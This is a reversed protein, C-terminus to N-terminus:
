GRPLPRANSGNCDYRGLVRNLGTVTEYCSDAGKGGSTGAGVGAGVACGVGAAVLAPGGSLLQPGASAGSAGAACGKIANRVAPVGKPCPSFAEPCRALGSLDVANVPNNAVYLYRNAQGLDGPQLLPDMQTWRAISPQYYRAGFHYLGNGIDHGGAYKISTSVTGSSPTDGGDVDYVYTRQVAGNSAVLATTSGIQDTVFWSKDTGKLQSVVTAGGPERVLKALTGGTTIRSVGLANNAYTDSGLGTIENNNPSLITTASGGLTALRGKADWTSSPGGSHGTQNGAADYNYTTAGAPPSAGPSSGTGCTPTVNSNIKWCLQNNDNYAM